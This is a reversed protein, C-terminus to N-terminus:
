RVLIRVEVRLYDALFERFCFTRHLGMEEGFIALWLGGNFRGELEVFLYRCEWGFGAIGAM